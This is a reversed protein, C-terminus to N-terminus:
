KVGHVKRALKKQKKSAKLIVEPDEVGLDGSTGDIYTDNEEMELLALYVRATLMADEYANHIGRSEKAIGLVKACHDLNFKKGTIRKRALKATDVIEVKDLLDDRNIRQLESYIFNRDFTANHGVFTDAKKILKLLPKCGEEFTPCTKLYAHDLGHVEEARASSRATVPNFEQYFGKKKIIKRNKIVVIGVSVIRDVSGYGFGTSEIDGVIEIM